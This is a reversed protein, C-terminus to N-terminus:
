PPDISTLVLKKLMLLSNSSSSGQLTVARGGNLGVDAVGDMVRTCAFGVHSFIGAHPM